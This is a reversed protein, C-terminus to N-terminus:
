ALYNSQNHIFSRIDQIEQHILQTVPDMKMNVAGRRKFKNNTSIPQMSLSLHNLAKQAELSDRETFM